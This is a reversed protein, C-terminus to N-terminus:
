RAHDRVWAAVADVDVPRTTDVDLRPGLAPCRADDAFWDDLEALREADFHCPHRSRSGVRDHVLARPCWCHVELVGPLASWDAAYASRVVHDIVLHDYARAVDLLAVAAAGGIRRSSESDGSGGLADWLAEKIMDKSVHAVGLAEALATGLTTKGSGPVGSVIM